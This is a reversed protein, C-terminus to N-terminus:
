LGQSGASRNAVSHEYQALVRRRQAEGLRTPRVWGLAQTGCFRVCRPDGGCLDCKLVQGETAAPAFSIAGLPCAAICLRCGICLAEQILWAGSAPDRAIAGVPCVAACPADTCQMCVVPLSLGLEERRLVQIRSLAPSCVGQHQLSCAMECLGCGTCREAEVVLMRNTGDM